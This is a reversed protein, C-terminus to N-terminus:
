YTSFWTRKLKFLKHIFDQDAQVGDLFGLWGGALPTGAKSAWDPCYTSDQPGHIVLPWVDFPEFHEM